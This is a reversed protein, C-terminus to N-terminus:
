RIGLKLQRVRQNRSFPYSPILALLYNPLAEEIRKKSSRVREGQDPSEFGEYASKNLRQVLETLFLMQTEDTIGKEFVVERIHVIM